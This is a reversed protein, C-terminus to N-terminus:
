RRALEADVAAVDIELGAPIGELLAVVAPGHSESASAFRLV